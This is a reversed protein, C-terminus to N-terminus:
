ENMTRLQVVVSPVFQWRSDRVQLTSNNITRPIWAEGM